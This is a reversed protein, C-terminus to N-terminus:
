YPRCDPRDADFGQTPHAPLPHDKILTPFRLDPDGKLQGELDTYISTLKADPTYWMATHRPSKIDFVEMMVLAATAHGQSLAIQYHRLAVPFNSKLIKYYAGLEYNAQAFSQEAACLTYKLGLEEKNGVYIYLKGLQTLASPNGMRAAKDLYTLGDTAPNAIGARNGILAGMNYFGQPINLEIMRQYLDITRKTDKEISGPWGTRYLAALNHMAKWHNREIAKEYLEVIHYWPRLTDPKALRVAERYWSEAVPDLSPLLDKEYVCVFSNNEAM